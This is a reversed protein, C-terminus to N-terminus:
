ILNLVLCRDMWTDNDVYWGSFENTFRRDEDRM